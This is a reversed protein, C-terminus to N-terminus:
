EWWRLAAPQELNAATLDAMWWPEEEPPDTGRGYIDPTSHVLEGLEVEIQGGRVTFAVGLTDLAAAPSVAWPYGIMREVSITGQALTVNYHCCGGREPLPAGTLGCHDEVRHICTACQWGATGATRGLLAPAYRCAASQCDRHNWFLVAQRHCYSLCM